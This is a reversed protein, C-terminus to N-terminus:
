VVLWKLFKLFLHLIIVAPLISIVIIIKSVIADFREQEQKSKWTKNDDNM